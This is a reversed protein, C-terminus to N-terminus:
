RGSLRDFPSGWDVGCRARRSGTSRRRTSLPHDRGARSSRACGVMFSLLVALAGRRLAARPCGNERGAVPGPGAPALASPPAALFKMSGELAQAHRVRRRERLHPVSGALVIALGVAAEAAATAIVLLRRTASLFTWDALQAGAPVALLGFFHPESRQADTRHEDPHHHRQAAAGRGRGWRSSCRGRARPTSRRTPTSFDMLDERRSVVAAVVAVLLLLSTVRVAPDVGSLPDAGSPRRAESGPSSCPTTVRRDGQM